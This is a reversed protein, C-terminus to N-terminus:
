HSNMPCLKAVECKKKRSFSVNTQLLYLFAAESIRNEILTNGSDMM